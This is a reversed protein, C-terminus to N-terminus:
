SIWTENKMDLYSCYSNDEGCYIFYYWGYPISIIHCPRIPITIYEVTDKVSNQILYTRFDIKANKIKQIASHHKPSILCVMMYGSLCGLLRMYYNQLIPTFPNKNTHILNDWNFSQQQLSVKWDRTLPLAFPKLYNTKLTTILSNNDKIVEQIDNHNQGILLDYGDWLEIEYYFITPQKKELLLDITDPDPHESQLVNLENNIKIFKKYHSLILYSLILIIFLTSYIFLTKVM